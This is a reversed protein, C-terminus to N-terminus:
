RRRLAGALLLGWLGILGTAPEPIAVLSVNDYFVRSSGNAFLDIAGIAAVGAGGSGPRNAWAQDAAGLLAGNYYQNVTDGDLDIDVQIQVWQDALWQGVVQGAPAGFDDTINGDASFSLEVSWNYPGGDNYTNQLIFFTTGNFGSPIYQEATLRWMGSTPNGMTNILDSAGEIAISNPASSSFANDVTAGAAPVNDWGKWGNNGHVNSGVAYSDFDDFLQGSAPPVMMAAAGLIFLTKLLRTM